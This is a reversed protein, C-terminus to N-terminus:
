KSAFFDAAAAITPSGDAGDSAPTDLNEALAMADLAVLKAMYGLITEEQDQVALDSDIRAILSRLYTKKDVAKGDVEAEANMPHAKLAATLRDIAERNRTYERAYRSDSAAGSGLLKVDITSVSHEFREEAAKQRELLDTKEPTAAAGDRAMRDLVAEYVRKKTQLRKRNLDQREGLLKIYERKEALFQHKLETLVEGDASSMAAQIEKLAQEKRAVGATAEGIAAALGSDKYDSDLAKNLYAAPLKVLRETAAPKWDTGAALAPRSLASAAVLAAAFAFKIYSPAIM